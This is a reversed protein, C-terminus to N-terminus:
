CNYVLYIKFTNAIVEDYFSNNLSDTENENPIFVDNSAPNEGRQLDIMM